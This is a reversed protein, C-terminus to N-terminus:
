LYASAESAEHHDFRRPKDGDRYEETGETFQIYVKGALVSRIAASLASGGHEKLVFGAVGHDLARQILQEDASLSLLIVRTKLQRVAIERTMELETADLTLGAILLDPKLQELQPVIGRLEASEGVLELDPETELLIKLGNRARHHAELLFITAM